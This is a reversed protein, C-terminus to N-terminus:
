QLEDYSISGLLHESSLQKKEQANYERNLRGDQMVWLKNGITLALRPDHTILLTTVSHEKIYAIAYQLLKTASVPDLAATPEDLLLLQPPQACTAMVFALLQRQGGSLSKVPSKLLHAFGMKELAKYLMPMAHLATMGDVFQATRGKYLSMALNQEVTMSSVGNLVPNQFLRSVRLARVRENEGSSDKEDFIIAGREPSRRGTLLDFFTSKGSGNAGVLVIFDGSMITCSINHLIPKNQISVFVNKLEIM